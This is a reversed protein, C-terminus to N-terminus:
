IKATSLSKFPSFLNKGQCDQFRNKHKQLGALCLPNWTYQTLESSLLGVPHLNCSLCVKHMICFLGQDQYSTDLHFYAVQSVIGKRVTSRAPPLTAMYRQYLYIDQTVGM